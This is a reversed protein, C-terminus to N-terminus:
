KTVNFIGGEILKTVIRKVMIPPVSMGCIYAIDSWSDSMFDYDEPFTQAYIIDMETIREKELGRNYDLKATLTQLVKDDWAIKSNFCREKEGLREFIDALRLDEKKAICLMKYTQTNPNTPKGRGTKIVGYVVPEYNFSMDLENQLM